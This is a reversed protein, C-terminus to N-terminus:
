EDLQDNLSEILVRTRAELEDLFSIIERTNYRRNNLLGELRM